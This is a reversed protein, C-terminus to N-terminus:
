SQRRQLSRLTLGAMNLLASVHRGIAEGDDPLSELLAHCSPLDMVARAAIFRGAWRVECPVDDADTAVAGSDSNIWGPRVPADDPTGTVQRYAAILTDTWAHIALMVGEGGFEDSLAQVARSAKAHDDSMASQLAIAALRLARARRPSEGAPTMGPRDPM